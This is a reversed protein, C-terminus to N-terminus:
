IHTLVSHFGNGDDPYVIEEDLAPPTWPVRTAELTM